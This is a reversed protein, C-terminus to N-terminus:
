LIELNRDRCAARMRCACGLELDHDTRAKCYTPLNEFYYIYYRVWKNPGIDKRRSPETRRVRDRAPGHAEIAIAARPLAHGM